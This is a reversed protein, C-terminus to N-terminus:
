LTRIVGTVVGWIRFDMAETIPLPAYGDNEAVLHVQGDRRRLRKVTLEGDVAAIVIRGDVPELARDVVLIDGPQIGANLMSDGAVRVFFTAAPHKILYQNLDLRGEVADDASSPFGAAIRTAYLPRALPPPAVAPAEVGAIESSLRVTAVTLWNELAPALSVPVRLPRTPEGYRGSGPPRGAGARVGGRTAM